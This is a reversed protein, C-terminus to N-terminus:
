SRVFDVVVAAAKDADAPVVLILTDGYITVSAEDLKPVEDPLYDAYSEKQVEIHDKLAQLATQATDASALTLVAVEEATAGASCYVTGAALDERAVGYDELGYLRYAIDLDLEELTESFVGGDLFAQAMTRTDPLTTSDVTGPEASGTGTDAPASASSGGGCAALTLSLCLALALTLYQKM